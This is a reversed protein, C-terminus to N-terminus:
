KNTENSRNIGSAKWDSRLAMQISISKEDEDIGVIEQLVISTNLVIPFPTVDNENGTYCVKPNGKEKSCSLLQARCNLGFIIVLM